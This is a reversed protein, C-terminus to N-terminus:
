VAKKQTEVRFLPFLNEYKLLKDLLFRVVNIKYGSSENMTLKKTYPILRTINSYFLFPIKCDPAFPLHFSKSMLETFHFISNKQRRKKGIKQQKPCM